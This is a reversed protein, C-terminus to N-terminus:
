KMDSFFEFVLQKNKRAKSRARAKKTAILKFIYNKMM